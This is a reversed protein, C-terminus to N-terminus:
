VKLGLGRLTDAIAEIGPHRQTRLGWILSGAENTFELMKEYGIISRDPHQELYRRIADLRYLAHEKAAEGALNVQLPQATTVAQATGPDPPTEPDRRRWWSM